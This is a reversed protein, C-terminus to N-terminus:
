MHNLMPVSSLNEYPCLSGKNGDRIFEGTCSCQTASLTGISILFPCRAGDKTICTTCKNADIKALNFRSLNIIYDTPTDSSDNTIMITRLYGNYVDNKQEVGNICLFSLNGDQDIGARYAKEGIHIVFDVISQHLKETCGINGGAGELWIDM